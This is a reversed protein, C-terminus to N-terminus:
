TVKVAKEGTFKEWRDISAQCYKPDIEMAHCTRRFQECTIITSGAGNFPDLILDGPKSSNLLAQAVLAIPKMTPHVRSASPRNIEWVTSQKRDGYFVHSGKKNWGYLIPEHQYNYDGHGIVISNKVWVITTSLYSEREFATVFDKHNNGAPCCVYQAAGKRCFKNIAHWADVFIRTTTDNKIKLAKETKGEYNVGYPPDTFVMEALKGDMLLALDEESTSDGCMLRHKGLQFINGRQIKTEIEDPIEYDDEKAIPAPGQLLRTAEQLTFGTLTLDFDSEQLTQFEVRLLDENWHAVRGAQNDMVRYAIKEQTTLGEVMSVKPIRTWGLSRAAALTTHGYLLVMDEDVGISVKAYGFRELSKAVLAVDGENPNREYPVLQDVQVNKLETIRTAPM